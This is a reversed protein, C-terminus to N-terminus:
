QQNCYVPQYLNHIKIYEEVPEPVLYKIPEGKAAKERIETSSILIGGTEHVHIRDRQEPKLRKFVRDLRDFCYGPRTVAIFECLEFLRSVDKWSMIELIADAGTIFFYEERDGRNERFYELTDVAYTPGEREVEVGSVGFFPNSEVALRTMQLRHVADLIDDRKKHVPRGSPLFYVRQLDFRYRSCEAIYLHGYHIPDFTGGMIGTRNKRSDAMM